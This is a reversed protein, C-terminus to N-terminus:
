WVFRRPTRAGTVAEVRRANTSPIAGAKVGVWHHAAFCWLDRNILSPESQSGKRDFGYEAYRALGRLINGRSAMKSGKLISEELGRFCEAM